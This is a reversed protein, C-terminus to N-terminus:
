GSLVSKRIGKPSGFLHRLRNRFSMEGEKDVVDRSISFHHADGFSFCSDADPYTRLDLLLKYM